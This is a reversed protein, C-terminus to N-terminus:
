RVESEMLILMMLLENTRMAAQEDFHDGTQASMIEASRVRREILEPDIEEDFMRQYADLRGGLDVIAQETIANLKKQFQNYEMMNRLYVTRERFARVRAPAQPDDVRGSYEISDAVSNRIIIADAVIEDIDIMSVLIPHARGIATLRREIEPQRERAFSFLRAASALMAEQNVIRVLPTVFDDLELSIAGAEIEGAPLMEVFEPEVGGAVLLLLSLKRYQEGPPLTEFREFDVAGQAAALPAQGCLLASLLLLRAGWHRM